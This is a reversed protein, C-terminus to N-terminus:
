HNQYHVLINQHIQRSTFYGKEGVGICSKKRHPENYAPFTGWLALKPHDGALHKTNLKGEPPRAAPPARPSGSEEAQLAFLEQRGLSLCHLFFLSWVNSLSVALYSSLLLGTPGWLVKAGQTDKERFKSFYLKFNHSLFKISVGYSLNRTLTLIRTGRPCFSHIHM